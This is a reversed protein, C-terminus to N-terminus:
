FILVVVLLTVYLLGSTWTPLLHMNTLLPEAVEDVLSSFVDERHRKLWLFAKKPKTLLRKDVRSLAYCVVAATTPELMHPRFAMLM